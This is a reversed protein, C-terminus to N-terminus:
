GVRGARYARRAPNRTSGLPSSRSRRSNCRSVARGGRARSSHQFPGASREASAPTGSRAEGVQACTPSAGARARRGDSITAFIPSAAPHKSCSSDAANTAKWSCRRGRCGMDNRNRRRCVGPPDHAGRALEDRHGLEGTSPTFRRRVRPPSKAGAGRRDEGFDHERTGRPLGRRLLHTAPCASRAVPSSLATRSLASTKCQAPRQRADPTSVKISLRGAKQHRAHRKADVRSVKSTASSRSARARPPEMRWEAVRVDFGPMAVCLRTGCLSVLRSVHRPVEKSRRPVTACHWGFPVTPSDDGAPRETRALHWRIVIPRPDRDRLPDVRNPLQNPLADFPRPRARIFWPKLSRNASNLAGPTGAHTCQWSCM